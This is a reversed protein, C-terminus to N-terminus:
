DLSADYSGAGRVSVTIGGDGLTGRFSASYAKLKKESKQVYVKFSGKVAGSKKNVSIKFGCNNEDRKESTVFDEEKKSFKPKSSKPVKFKSGTWTVDIGDPLYESLVEMGNIEDPADTLTFTLSTDPELTQDGIVLTKKKGFAVFPLVAALAVVAITKMKM